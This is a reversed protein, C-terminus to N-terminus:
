TGLELLITRAAVAVAASLYAIFLGTDYSKDDRRAEIRGEQQANRKSNWLNHALTARQYQITLYDCITWITLVMRPNVVEITFFPM